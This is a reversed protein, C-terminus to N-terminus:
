PQFWQSLLTCASKGCLSIYTTETDNGFTNSVDCTVVLTSAQNINVTGNLIFTDNEYVNLGFSTIEEYSLDTGPGNLTVIWRFRPEPQPEQTLPCNITSQFTTSVPDEICFDTGIDYQLKHNPKDVPIFDHQNGSEGIYSTAIGQVRPKAVTPM